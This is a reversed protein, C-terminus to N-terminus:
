LGRREREIRVRREIQGYVRRGLDDLDVAAPAAAQRERMEKVLRHMSEVQRRVSRAGDEAQPRVALDLAAPPRAPQRAALPLDAPVGAGTAAPTRHELVATRTAALRRLARAVAAGGAGRWRAAPAQEVAVAAPHRLSMRPALRRRGRAPLRRPRRALRALM